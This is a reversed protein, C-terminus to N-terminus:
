RSVGKVGLSQLLDIFKKYVQDSDDLNKLFSDIDQYNFEYNFSITGPQSRDKPRFLHVDVMGKNWPFSFSVELGFTLQVLQTPCTKGQSDWDSM